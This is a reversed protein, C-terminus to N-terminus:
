SASAIERALHFADRFDFSVIKDSELMKKFLEFQARYKTHGIALAGIGITKEGLKVRGSNVDLGAVGLPPVANVDAVVLLHPADKLLLSSIVQVGAKAATMAVDVRKLLDGKLEETSADVAEVTVGFRDQMERASESVQKAGNHGALIVHAGELAAIVGSAYGVVGTAGFVAVKLGKLTQNFEKRLMTDVHAVMAAATTFSGAPDAYVSCGFPPVLAKKSEDIWDLAQGANRGAIFIGTKPGLRPPRSFIADQVLGNVQDNTVDVYPIVADFGADLAMNVDFPSMQKLPTLMHLITKDAM